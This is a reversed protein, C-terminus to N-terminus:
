YYFDSCRKYCLEYTAGNQSIHSTSLARRWSGYIQCNQPPGACNQLSYLCSPPTHIDNQTKTRHFRLRNLFYLLSDNGVSAVLALIVLQALLDVHRLFDAPLLFPSSFFSLRLRLQSTDSHFIGLQSKPEGSHIHKSGLLPQSEVM